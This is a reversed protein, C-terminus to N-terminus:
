KCQAQMAEMTKHSSAVQSLCQARYAAPVQACQAEGAASEQAFSAFEACDAASPKNAPASCPGLYTVNSRTVSQIFGPVDDRTEITLTKDDVATMKSRTVHRSGGVACTQEYEAVRETDTIVTTKCSLADAKSLKQLAAVAKPDTVGSCSTSKTPPGLSVGNRTGSSEQSWLGSAPYRHFNKLFTASVQADAPGTPLILALLLCATAANALPKFRPKSNKLPM